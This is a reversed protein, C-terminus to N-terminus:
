PLFRPLLVCFLHRLELVTKESGLRFKKPGGGYIGSLVGPSLVRLCLSYSHVPFDLSWGLIRGM